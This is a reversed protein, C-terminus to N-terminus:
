VYNNRSYLSMHPSMIILVATKTNSSLFLTTIGINQIVYMIVLKGTLASKLCTEVGQKLVHM